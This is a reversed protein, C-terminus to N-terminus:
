SLVGTRIRLIVGVPLSHASSKGIYLGVKELKLILKPIRM